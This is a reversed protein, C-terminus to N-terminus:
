ETILKTALSRPIREFDSPFNDIVQTSFKRSDALVYYPKGLQALKEAIRKTGYKNIIHDGSIFDAGTIFLDVEQLISQGPDDQLLEVNFDLDHLEAAQIIGEKAPLSQTQFIKPKTDHMPLREFVSLITQSRSHLLITNVNSLLPALKIAVAQPVLDYKRKYVTLIKQWDATANKLTESLHSLTAFFPKRKALEEIQKIALIKENASLNLRILLSILKDALAASGSIKDNDIELLVQDFEDIM